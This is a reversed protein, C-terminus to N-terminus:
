IRMLFRVIFFRLFVRPSLPCLAVTNKRWIPDSRSGRSTETVHRGSRPGSPPLQVPRQARQHRDYSCQAGRGSIGFESFVARTRVPSVVCEYSSPTNADFAPASFYVSILSGLRLFQARDLSPYNCESSEGAWYPLVPYTYGFVRTGLSSVHVWLSLSLDFLPM